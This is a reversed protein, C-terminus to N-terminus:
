ICSLWLNGSSRGDESVAGVLAPGGELDGRPASHDIQTEGVQYIHFARSEARVRVGVVSRGNNALCQALSRSWMREEGECCGLPSPTMMGMKCIHFSLSLPALTVSGLWCFSLLAWTHVSHQRQM